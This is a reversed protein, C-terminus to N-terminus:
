ILPYVFATPSNKKKKCRIRGLCTCEACYIKRKFDVRGAIVETNVVQIRMNDNKMCEM